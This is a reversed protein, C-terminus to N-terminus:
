AVRLMKQATPTFSNPTRAPSTRSRCTPLLAQLPRRAGFRRSEMDAGKRFIGIKTTMIEQMRTRLAVADENGGNTTFHKQARSGAQCADYIISTPIDIGNEPKDCFDAIFEGVIM